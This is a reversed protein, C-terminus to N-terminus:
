TVARFELYNVPVGGSANRAKIWLQEGTGQWVCFVSGAAGECRLFAWGDAESWTQAFLTEVATPEAVLAAAARDGAAWADYTAHIYGAANGPLAPVTTTPAPAVTTTPAVGTTSTTADAAPSAEAATRAGTACGVLGGGM